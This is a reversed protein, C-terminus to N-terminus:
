AKAAKSRRKSRAEGDPHGGARPIPESPAIAGAEQAEILDAAFSLQAAIGRADEIGIAFTWGMSEVLISRGPGVGVKVMAAIKQPIKPPNM